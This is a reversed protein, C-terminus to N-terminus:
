QTFGIKNLRSVLYKNWVKGAQNKDNLSNLLKIIVYEGWIINIVPPIEMYMHIKIPDQPYAM